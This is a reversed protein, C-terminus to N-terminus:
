KLGNLYIAIDEIQRESLPSLAEQMQALKGSASPLSKVTNLKAVLADVPQGMMNGPKETHCAACLSAYLEGGTVTQEDTAAVSQVVGLLFVAGSILCAQKLFINM